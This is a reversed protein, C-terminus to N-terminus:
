SPELTEGAAIALADEVTRVVPVEWGDKRHMRRAHLTGAVSRVLVVVRVYRRVFEQRLTTAVREFAADQRGIAQRADIIATFDAHGVSAMGRRYARLLEGPDEVRTPMRVFWLARRNLDVTVKLHETDFLVEDGGPPERM